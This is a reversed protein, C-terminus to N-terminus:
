MLRERSSSGGEISGKHLVGNKEWDTCSPKVVLDGLCGWSYKFSKSKFERQFQCTLICSCNQGLLGAGQSAARHRMASYERAVALRPLLAKGARSPITKAWPHAQSDTASRVYAQMSSSLRLTSPSGAVAENEPYQLLNCLPRLASVWAQRHQANHAPLFIPRAATLAARGPLRLHRPTLFAITREVLMPMAPTNHNVRVEAALARVTKM